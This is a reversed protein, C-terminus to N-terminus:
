CCRALVEAITRVAPDFRGPDPGAFNLRIFKGTPEAPFLGNGSAIMVGARECDVVLRHLDTTDPLRVWLNLGGGPVGSLVAEPLHTHVADVLLDRRSRLQGRLSARHTRWAPQSVVDLAAVQLLPSVYMASATVNARIREGVPGRAIVAGVRLAPSVSKTLSRLYIVRGADDQAALPAHEPDETMGFDHAWDDEILFAGHRALVDIIERRRTPSWTTGTPNAYRPQAYFARAGTRALTRDLEVPEPGDGGGVAPVLTVGSEGAALIAGWYTPSEIVVPAGPSAVARFIAALGSQTGPLVTVDAAAAPTTGSPTHRGLERAFWQRLEAVGARPAAAVAVDSRAARVLAQRVLKEPLLRRDPYGNHLSVADEPTPRLPGDDGSGPTATAAVATGATSAAGLAGAQWSYDAPRLRRGTPGAAVFTGVGPRTDVLGEATLTRLATQVTGPGVGHDRVLARTAPLRTGPAHGVVWGRLEEVLRASSSQSM